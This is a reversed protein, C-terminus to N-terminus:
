DIKLEKIYLRNSSTISLDPDPFIIPYDKEVMLGTFTVAKPLDQQLEEDLDEMIGVKYTPYGAPSEEPIMIGYYGFCNLYQLTGNVETLEELCNEFACNVEYGDGLVGDITDGDKDFCGSSFIVFLSLVFYFSHKM